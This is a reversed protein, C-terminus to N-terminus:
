EDDKIIMGNIVLKPSMRGTYLGEVSDLIAMGEFVADDFRGTGRVIALNMVLQQTREGDQVTTTLAPGGYVTLEVEDGYDPFTFHISGYIGESQPNYTLDLDVDWSGSNNVTSSGYGSIAINPQLSIQDRSKRKNQVLETDLYVQEDFNFATSASSELVTTEFRTNDPTVNEVLGDQQCSTLGLTALAAITLFSHTKM